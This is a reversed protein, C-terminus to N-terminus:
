FKLLAKDNKKTLLKSRHIGNAKAKVLNQQKPFHQVLITSHIELDKVTKIDEIELYFFVNDGEYEKGLFHIKKEQSNAKLHFNQELYKKFYTDSDTIEKKTDLQMDVSYIENIATEIDDIFVNVIIQISAQDSRHEIQTLSLYFKHNNFSFLPMVLLLLLLYNTKMRM